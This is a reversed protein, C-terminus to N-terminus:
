KCLETFLNDEKTLEVEGRSVKSMAFFAVILLPMLILFMWRLGVGYEFIFGFSLPGVIQSSFSATYYLGTYVGISKIDPAM